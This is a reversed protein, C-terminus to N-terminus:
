SDDLMGFSLFTTFLAILAVFYIEPHLLMVMGAIIWITKIRRKKALYRPKLRRQHSQECDVRGARLWQPFAALADLLADLLKKM